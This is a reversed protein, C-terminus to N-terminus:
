VLEGREQKAICEMVFADTSDHYTEEPTIFIVFGGFEDQRMKDCYYCAKIYAYQPAGQDSARWEKLMTQLVEALKDWDECGDECFIYGDSEYRVNLEDLEDAHAKVIEPPFYPTVTGPEYNNAM